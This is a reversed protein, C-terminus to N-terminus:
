ERLAHADTLTALMGAGELIWYVGAIGLVAGVGVLIRVRTSAIL